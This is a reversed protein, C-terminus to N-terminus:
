ESANQEYLRAVDDENVTIERTFGTHSREYKISSALEPREHIARAVVSKEEDSLDSVDDAWLTTTEVVLSEMRPDFKNYGAM